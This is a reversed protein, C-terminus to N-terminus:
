ARERPFAYQTIPAPRQLFRRHITPLSVGRLSPDRNVGEAKSKHNPRPVLADVSLEKPTLSPLLM